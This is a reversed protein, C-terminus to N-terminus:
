GMRFAGCALIRQLLTRHRAAPRRFPNDDDILIQAMGTGGRGVPGTKLAQNGIHAQTLHAQDQPQLDRAQSPTRAVSKNSELTKYRSYREIYNRQHCATAPIIPPLDRWTSRMFECHAQHCLSPERFM